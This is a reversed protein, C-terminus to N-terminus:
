ILRSTAPIIYGSSKVATTWCHVETDETLASLERFQKEKQYDNGATVLVVM